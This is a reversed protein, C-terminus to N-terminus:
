CGRLGSLNFSPAAEGTTSGAKFSLLKYQTSSKVSHPTLVAVNRVILGKSSRDVFVNIADGVECEDLKPLSYNFDATAVNRVHAHM